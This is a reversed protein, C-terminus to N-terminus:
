AHQIGTRKHVDSWREDEFRDGVDIRVAPRCREEVIGIADVFDSATMTLAVGLPSENTRVVGDIELHREGVEVQEDRQVGSENGLV